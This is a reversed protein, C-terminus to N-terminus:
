HLIHQGARAGNENGIKLCTIQHCVWDKGAPEWVMRWSSVTVPLGFSETADQRSLVDIDVTIGSPDQTEDTRTVTVSKVGWQDANTKAGNVLAARNSFLTGDVTGLTADPDLLASMKVWDRRPVSQVLEGNLRKVKQLDTEFVFGLAFILVALGILGLGVNRPRAQQKQNGSWFLVGGVGALTLLLYWPIAFLLNAM